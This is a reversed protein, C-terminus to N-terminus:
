HLGLLGTVQSATARPPGAGVGAERPRVSSALNVVDPHLSICASHQARKVFGFGSLEDVQHVLRQPGAQIMFGLPGLLKTPLRQPRTEGRWSQM